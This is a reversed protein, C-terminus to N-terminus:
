FVVALTQNAWPHMAPNGARGHPHSGATLNATPDGLASDGGPFCRDGDCIGPWDNRGLCRPLRRRLFLCIVFCTRRELLASSLLSLLLSVRGPNERRVFPLPWLRQGPFGPLRWNPVIQPWLARSRRGKRSAENRHGLSGHQVTCCLVTGNCVVFTHPAVVDQLWLSSDASECERVSEARLHSCRRRAPTWVVLWISAPDGTVPWLDSTVPQM